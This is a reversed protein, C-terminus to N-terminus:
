NTDRQVNVWVPLEFAQEWQTGENRVDIKFSYAGEATLTIPSIPIRIISRSRSFEMLDVDMEIPESQIAGPGTMRISSQGIEGFSPDSRAYLVSLCYDFVARPHEDTGQVDQPPPAPVALEDIVEILSINNSQRDVIATRSLIAWNVKM